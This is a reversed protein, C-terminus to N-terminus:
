PNWKKMHEMAENLTPMGKRGGIEKCKLGACINAFRMSKELDWGKLYACLFAGHFVDGAGTTDVIDEVPYEPVKIAKMDDKVMGISGNSALTIVAIKAGYGIFDNLANEYDEGYKDKVFSRSVILLDAHHVFDESHPTHPEADMCVEVGNERAFKVLKLNEEPFHADSHVIKSNKIVEYMKDQIPMHKLEGRDAIITRTAKGEEIIISSLAPAHGKQQVICKTNVGEKKLTNKSFKGIAGEGVTGIFATKFGLRAACAIATAAQGGGQISSYEPVTKHDVEPFEKVVNLHDVTTGGLGVIDYKAM